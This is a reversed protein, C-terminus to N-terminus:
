NSQRGDQEGSWGLLAPLDFTKTASPLLLEVGNPQALTLSVHKIHPLLMNAFDPHQRMSSLENAPVSGQTMIYNEIRFMFEKAFEERQCAEAAENDPLNSYKRLPKIRSICLDIFELEEQCAQVLQDNLPQALEIELKEAQAEIRKVPDTHRLNRDIDALRARTKIESVRSANLAQQRDDRQNLLAFYAADATFCSGVIFYALQFNNNTKNRKVIM